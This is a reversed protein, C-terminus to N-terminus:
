KLIKEEACRGCRGCFEALDSAAELRHAILSAAHPPLDPRHALEKGDHRVLYRRMPGVLTKRCRKPDVFEARTALLVFLLERSM